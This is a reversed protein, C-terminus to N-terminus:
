ACVVRQGSQRRKAGALKITQLLAERHGSGFSLHTQGTRPLRKVTSGNTALSKGVQREQLFGFVAEDFPEKNSAVVIREISSRWAVCGAVFFNDSMM